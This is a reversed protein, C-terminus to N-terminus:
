RSATDPDRSAKSSGAMYGEILELIVDCTRKEELDLRERFSDWVKRKGSPIYLNFNEVPLEKLVSYM